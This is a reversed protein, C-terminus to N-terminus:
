IEDLVPTTDEEGGARAATGQVLIEARWDGSGFHSLVAHDFRCVTTYTRRVALILRSLREGGHAFTERTVALPCAFFQLNRHLLVSSQSGWFASINSPKNLGDRQSTDEYPEFDIVDVFEQKIQKMMTDIHLGIDPDTWPLDVQQNVVGSGGAAGNMEQKIEVTAGISPSTTMAVYHANYDKQLLCMLVNSIFPRDNSSISVYFKIV